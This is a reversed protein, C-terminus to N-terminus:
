IISLQDMLTIDELVYYSVRVRGKNPVELHVFTLTPQHFKYQSLVIWKSKRKFICCMSSAPRAFVKIEKKQINEITIGTVSYTKHQIKKM